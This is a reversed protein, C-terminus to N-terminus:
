LVVCAIRDAPHLRARIESLQNLIWRRNFPVFRLHIESTDLSALARLFTILWQVSPEFAAYEQALIRASTAIALRTQLVIRVSFASQNVAKTLIEKITMSAYALALTIGNNVSQMPEARRLNVHIWRNRQLFFQETNLQSLIAFEFFHLTKLSILLLFIFKIEFFISSKFIELFISTNKSIYDNYTFFWSYIFLMGELVCQVFPNGAYGIKCSCTVAHNVVKCEANDGCSGPCPDKCKM